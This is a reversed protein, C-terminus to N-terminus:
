YLLETFSRGDMEPIVRVVKSRVPIKKNGDFEQLLHRGTTVKISSDTIKKNDITYGYSGTITVVMSQSKLKASYRPKKGSKVKIKGTHDHYYPAYIRVKHTGLPIRHEGLGGYQVGDVVLQANPTNAKFKVPVSKKDLDINATYIKEGEPIIIEAKKADYNSATCTYTHKGPDLETYAHGNKVTVPKGDIRLTANDTNFYFYTSVTKKSESEPRALTVEYTLGGKVRIGYETFDIEGALYDSHRFKLRKTGQTVYIYYIARDERVDGIINNEFTMGSLTPAVVKVLGCINDNLDYRPLKEADRDDPLVTVSEVVLSQALTQQAYGFCITLLLLAYKIYKKM